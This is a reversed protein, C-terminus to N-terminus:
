LDKLEKELNELEKEEEDDLIEPDQPHLRKRKRLTKAREELQQYEAVMSPDPRPLDNYPM